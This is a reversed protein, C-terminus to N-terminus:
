LLFKFFKLINYKDIYAILKNNKNLDENDFNNVLYEIYKSKPNYYKDLLSNSYIILNKKLKYNKYFKIIKNTYYSYYPCIENVYYINYSCNCLFCIIILDMTNRCLPCILRHNYYNNIISLWHSCFILDKNHYYYM